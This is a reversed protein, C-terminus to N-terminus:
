RNRKTCAPGESAGFQGAADDPSIQGGRSIHALAPVSETRRFVQSSEWAPGGSAGIRWARRHSSDARGADIHALAPMSGIIREALTSIRAERAGGSIIM